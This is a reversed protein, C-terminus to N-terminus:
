QAEESLRVLAAAPNVLNRDRVDDMVRTRLAQYIGYGRPAGEDPFDYDSAIVFLTGHRRDVGDIFERLLEYHEIAMARTYYRLGDRPNRALTVRSNDLM